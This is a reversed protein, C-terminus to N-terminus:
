GLGGQNHLVGQFINQLSNAAFRLVSERKGLVLRKFTKGHNIDDTINRWGSSLGRTNAKM